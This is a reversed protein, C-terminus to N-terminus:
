GISPTRRQNTSRKLIKDYKQIMLINHVSRKQYVARFMNEQAAIDKNAAM